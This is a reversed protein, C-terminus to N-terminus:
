GGSGIRKVASVRRRRGDNSLQIIIDVNSGIYSIVESRSMNTARGVLLSLQEIAQDPSNAHITTMSGPHGTNVARLFTAAESGRLEGLLIRDPRMRLTAILLDESSVAAEGSEGRTAILGLANAHTIQIEPTDEIFVLREHAPITKILSNLFTTKGTATGGSVIITKRMAVALNLYSIWDEREYAGALGDESPRVPDGKATSEFAGGVAHEELSLGAVVHKRIAIAISGRTAPPAVVQVRSGDALWAALLPNARSIGQNSSGAIQWSLRWLLAETLEPVDIRRIGGGLREVWMEGPRNIYIDTVDAQSLEGM